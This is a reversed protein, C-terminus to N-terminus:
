AEGSEDVEPQSTEVGELYECMYCYITGNFRHNLRNKIFVVDDADLEIKPDKWFMRQLYGARLKADGDTEEEKPERALALNIAKRRTLPEQKLVQDEIPNGDKDRKLIVSGMLDEKNRWVFEGDLQTVSVDLDILTTGKPKENKKKKM